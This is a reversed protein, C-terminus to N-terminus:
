FPRFIYAIHEELYVIVDSFVSPIYQSYQLLVLYSVSVPKQSCM